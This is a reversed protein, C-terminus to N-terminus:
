PLGYEKFILKATQVLNDASSSKSKERNPIQLWLTCFVYCNRCQAHFHGCWGSGIEYHLTKQHLERQQYEWCITCQEVACEIDAKINNWYLSVRALLWTGKIKMPNRHLQSLIQKQLVFPIIIWKGRMAM